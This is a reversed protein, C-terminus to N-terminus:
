YYYRITLLEGILSLTNEHYADQVPPSYFTVGGSTYSSTSHYHASTYQYHIQASAGLSLGPVGPIFYELDPGFGLDISERRDVGVGAGVMSLSPYMFQSGSENLSYVYGAEARWGISLGGMNRVQRVVGVNLGYVRYKSDNAGLTSSSEHGENFDDITLVPTFDFVWKDSARWRVTPRGENWETGMGHVGIAVSGPASDEAYGVSSFVVAAMVMILVVIKRM